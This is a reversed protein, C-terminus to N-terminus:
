GGGRGAERARPAAQKRDAIQLKQLINSVYDAVTKPGLSFLRAIEANSAGRAILHLM